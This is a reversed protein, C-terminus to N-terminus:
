REWHLAADMGEPLPTARAIVIAKQLSVDRMLAKTLAHADDLDPNRVQEDKIIQATLEPESLPSEGRKCINEALRRVTGFKQIVIEGRDMKTTETAASEGRKKHGQSLAIGHRDFILFHLADEVSIGESQAILEAMERLHQTSPSRQNNDSSDDDRKFLVIRAGKAAGKDVSSVENIRLNRLVRAM